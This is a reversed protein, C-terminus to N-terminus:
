LYVRSNWGPKKLSESSFANGWINTLPFSSAFNSNDTFDLDNTFRTFSCTRLLCFRIEFAASFEFFREMFQPINMVTVISDATTM